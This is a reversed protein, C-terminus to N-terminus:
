KVVDHLLAELREEAALARGEMSEYQFWAERVTKAGNFQESLEHKISSALGGEYDLQENQERLDDIISQLKRIKILLRKDESLLKMVCGPEADPMPGFHLRANHENMFREGCHFCVWGDEPALYTDEGM